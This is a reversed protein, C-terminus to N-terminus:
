VDGQEIDDPLKEGKLRRRGQLSGLCREMLGPDTRLKLGPHHQLVIEATQVSLPPYGRDGLSRNVEKARSLSSSWAEDFKVNTLRRALLKAENRGYDNLPTDLHGQIIGQKNSSITLM